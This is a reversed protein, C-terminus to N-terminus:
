PRSEQEAASRGTAPEHKCDLAAVTHEAALLGPGGGLLAGLAAEWTRSGPDLIANHGEGEVVVLTAPDGATRAARVYERSSEVPVQADAEGHVCVVPTGIPVRHLPSASRYLEPAEAYGAGFLERLCAQAAPRETARLLDLPAGTAVARRVPREGALWVALQGGASHGDVRLDDVDMCVEPRVQALRDAVVSGLADVAAVVDASMQPWGGGAGIRRYEVNWVVAGRRSLEVAFATRLNLHYDANWSGGHLLVVVPSPGDVPVTPAYLHGFQAPHDGYAIKLRPM